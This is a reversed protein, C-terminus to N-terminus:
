SITKCVENSFSSENPPVSLDYATAAFYYTTGSSLGTTVTYTITPGVDMIQPYTGSKTGYYIRYGAAGAVANWTLVTPAAGTTCAITGGGGGSGGPAPEGAGGCAVLLSAIALLLLAGSYRRAPSSCDAEYTTHAHAM